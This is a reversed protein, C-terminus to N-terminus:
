GSVGRNKKRSYLKKIRIFLIVENDSVAVSKRHGRSRTVDGPLRSRDNFELMNDFILCTLVEDPHRRVIAVSYSLCGGVSKGHFASRVSVEADVLSTPCRITLGQHIGM